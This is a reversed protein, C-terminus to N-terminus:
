YFIEDNESREMFSKLYEEQKKLAWRLLGRLFLHQNSIDLPIIGVDIMKVTGDPLVLCNRVYKDHTFLLGLAGFFEWTINKEKMVRRNIEVIEQFQKAVKPDKMLKSSLLQGKLRKQLYVYRRHDVEVVIKTDHLYDGFHSKLLKYQSTLGDMVKGRQLIFRLGFPSKIVMDHHYERVVHEGGLSVIGGIKDEEVKMRSDM